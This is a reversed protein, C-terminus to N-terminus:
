LGKRHWFQHVQGPRGSAEGSAFGGISVTFGAVRVVSM